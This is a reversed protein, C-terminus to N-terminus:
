FVPEDFYKYTYKDVTYQAMEDNKRHTGLQFMLGREPNRHDCM